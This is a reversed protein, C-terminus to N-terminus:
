VYAAHNSSLDSLYIKIFNPKMEFDWSTEPFSYLPKLNFIIIFGEFSRFYEPLWFLASLNGCNLQWKPIFVFWVLRLCFKNIKSLHIIGWYRVTILHFCHKWPPTNWIWHAVKGKLLHLKMWMKNVEVQDSLCVNDVFYYSSYQFIESTM